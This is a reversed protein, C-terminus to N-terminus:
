GLLLKIGLGILLVLVLRQFREANLFRDLSFGAALGLAMGPLALLYSYCVQSTAAPPM